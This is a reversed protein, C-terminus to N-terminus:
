DEFNINKYVLKMNEVSTCMLRAIPLLDNYPKNFDVNNIDSTWVHRLKSPTLKDVNLHKKLAAQFASTYSSHSTYPTFYNKDKNFTGFLFPRKFFSVSKRLVNEMETPINEIIEGYIKATKYKHYVLTLPSKDMDIYNDTKPDFPISKYVKNNKTSKNKDVVFYTDPSDKFRLHIFGAECRKPKLNTIFIIFLFNMHQTWNSYNTNDDLLLLQNKKNIIDKYPVVSLVIKKTAKGDKYKDNNIKNYSQLLEQWIKYTNEHKKAFLPNHKFISVFPSIYNKITNTNTLKIHNGDQDIKITIHPIILQVLQPNLLLTKISVNKNKFGIISFDQKLLVDIYNKYGYFTEDSISNQLNNILTQITTM